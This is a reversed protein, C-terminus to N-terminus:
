PSNPLTDADSSMPTEWDAIFVLDSIEDTVFIVMTGNTFRYRKSQVTVVYTEGVAVEPFLFNGFSGALATQSGGNPDSISVIAKPIGNGLADTVRGGVSVTAATPPFFAQWFGGKAAFRASTSNEGALSQANTGVVGFIESNSNGGGGAIVSQTIAFQESSQAAALHAALLVTLILALLNKM